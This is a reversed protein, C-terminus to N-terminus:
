VRGQTSRIANNPRVAGQHLRVLNKSGHAISTVTPGGETLRDPVPRAPGERAPAIATGPAAAGRSDQRWATTPIGQSDGPVRRGQDPEGTPRIEHPARRQPCAPLLGEGRSSVRVCSCRGVPPVGSPIPREV